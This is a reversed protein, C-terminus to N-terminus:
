VLRQILDLLQKLDNITTLPNMLATRLYFGGKISTSVIYFRGDKIIQKLIEKNLANLDNTATVYRFCVINAQPLCLLEFNPSEILMQGFSKALEYLKNINQRYLHQGYLKMVTYVHLISMPKTCEFTQKGSNYWEDAQQDQWLYQADQTFTFQSLEHSRFILATSLSPVMMMKHFDLILSNARETGKLLHTYDPSFIAAGGHAADVHFWLRFKEAFDALAELNDYAGTATTCACGIVGFIHKSESLSKLYLPELTDVLISFDNGAPIKIINESPIGMVTFARSVSYHAEESVMIALQEYRVDTYQRLYYTRAALLASLNGLTGGSTVFGSAEAGFGFRKALDSIIVKEMANGAMGMEYVAMGNNLFAMLASTLITVPLTPPVQHGIYARRHVNISKSIVKEFLELADAPAPSEFDNQWYALQQEPSEWPLVTEGPQLHAKKLEETLIGILGEALDRFKEPDYAETILNEM